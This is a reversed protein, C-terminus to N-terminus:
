KNISAETYTNVKLIVLSAIKVSGLLVWLVEAKQSYSMIGPISNMIMDPNRMYM